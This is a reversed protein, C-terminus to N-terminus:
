GGVLYGDEVYMWDSVHSPEFGVRQMFKLSPLKPEIAVVGSPKSGSFGFGGAM